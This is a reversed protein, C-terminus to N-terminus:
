PQVNATILLEVWPQTLDNTAFWVVRTVPGSTVHFDPDFVVTLDARQGPLIVSSSLQATTCGCSTVLNSIELNMTGTNQVAFIHAVDPQVLITGFDYTTSPLDLRPVPENAPPQQPQPPPQPIREMDHGGQLPRVAQALPLLVESTENRSASGLVTETAQSQWLNYGVVLLVLAVLIGGVWLSSANDRLWNHKRYQKVNRSSKRKKYRNSM